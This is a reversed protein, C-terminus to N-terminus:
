CNVLFIEKFAAVTLPPLPKMARKASFFINKIKNVKKMWSKKLKKM